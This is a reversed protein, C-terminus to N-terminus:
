ARQQLIRGLEPAIRSQRGAIAASCALARSATTAGIQQRQSTAEVAVRRPCRL